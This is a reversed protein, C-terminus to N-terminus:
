VRAPRHTRGPCARCCTCHKSVGNVSHLSCANYMNGSSGRAEMDIQTGGLNCPMSPLSPCPRCPRAHTLPHLFSHAFRQPSGFSQLPCVSSQWLVAFPSGFSQPPWLVAFSLRGILPSRLGCSQLSSSSPQIPDALWCLRGTSSKQSQYSDWGCETVTHVFVAHRFFRKAM